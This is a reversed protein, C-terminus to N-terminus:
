TEDASHEMLLKLGRALSDSPLIPHSCIASTSSKCRITFVHGLIQCLFCQYDLHHWLVQQPCFCQKKWGRNFVTPLWDVRYRVELAPSTFPPFFLLVLRSHAQKMETRVTEGM